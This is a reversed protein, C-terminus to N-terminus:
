RPLVLDAQTGVAAIGAGQANFTVHATAETMEVAQTNGYAYYGRVRVCAEFPLRDVTLQYKYSLKLKGLPLRNEATVGEITTVCDASLVEFTPTAVVLSTNTFWTGYLVAGVLQPTAPTIPTGPRDPGSMGDTNCGTLAVVLGAALALQRNM